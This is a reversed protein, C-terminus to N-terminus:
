YGRCEFTTSTSWELLHMPLSPWGDIEATQLACCRPCHSTYIPRDVIWEDKIDETTVQSRGRRRGSEATRITKRRHMMDAFMASGRYNATASLSIKIDDPLSYPWSPRRSRYLNATLRLRYFRYSDKIPLPRLFLPLPSSLLAM